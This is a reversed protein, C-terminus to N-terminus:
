WTIRSGNLRRYLHLEDRLRYPLPRGTFELASAYVELAALLNARAALTYAALASGAGREDALHNRANTVEDLLGPLETVQFRRVAAPPPMCQDNRQEPALRTRM